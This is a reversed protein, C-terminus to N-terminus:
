CLFLSFLTTCVDTNTYKILGPETVDVYRVLHKDLETSCYEFIREKATASNNMIILAVSSDCLLSLEMAKKLLGNKRKNFTVQRNREDTIREIKIKKRGV